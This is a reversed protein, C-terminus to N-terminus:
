WSRAARSPGRRRTTTSRSSRGPNLDFNADLNSSAIFLKGKSVVASATFSLPMPSAVAVGKSNKQATTFTVSLATLDVQTVDAPGKATLPDFIYVAESSKGSAVALATRDDSIALAGMAGGAALPGAPNLQIARDLIPKAGALDLVRVYGKDVVVFAKGALAPSAPIQLDSLSNTERIAAFHNLALTASVAAGVTSTPPPTVTTGSTTPTTGAGTQSTVAATTSTSRRGGSGGNCGTSAVGLALLSLVLANVGQAPSYSSKM